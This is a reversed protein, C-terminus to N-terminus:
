LMHKLVVITQDAVVAIHRHCVDLVVDRFREPMRHLVDRTGMVCGLVKREITHGDMDLTLITVIWMLYISISRLVGISDGAWIDADRPDIRTTQLYGACLTKIFYAKFAMCVIIYGISQGNGALDVLEVGAQFKIGCIWRKM